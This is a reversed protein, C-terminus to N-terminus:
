KQKRLLYLFKEVVGIANEWCEAADFHQVLLIGHAQFLRDSEHPLVATLARQISSAIDSAEQDESNTPQLFPDDLSSVGKSVFHYLARPAVLTLVLAPFNSLDTYFAQYDSSALLIKAAKEEGGDILFQIAGAIPQDTPPLGPLAM